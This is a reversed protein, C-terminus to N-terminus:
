APSKPLQTEIAEIPASSCAEAPQQATLQCVAATILNASGLIAKAQASSPERLSRAIGQWSMGQILDPQYTSGTFVYRNGLDVFPIAGPQDTYPAADYGSVLAQQEATPQQLLNYGGSGQPQRGFQEVPVFDLYQSVYRSGRFTFSRTDPYVDSSSSITAQLGSFSGFRSLAVILPWREAACYPCYEAGLYLLEPKGTPGILPQGPVARLPIQASGLGVQALTTPPVSTIQSVVEATIAPSLSPPPSSQTALRALFFVVVVLAVM